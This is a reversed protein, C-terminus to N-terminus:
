DWPYDVERWRCFYEGSEILSSIADKKNANAPFVDVISAGQDKTRVRVGAAVAKVMSGDMRLVLWEDSGDTSGLELRQTMSTIVPVFVGPGVVAVSSRRLEGAICKSAHSQLREIIQDQTGASVVTVTKKATNVEGVMQATPRDTMMTCAAM